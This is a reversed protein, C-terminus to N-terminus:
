WRAAGLYAPPDKSVSAELAALLADHHPSARRLAVVHAATNGLIPDTAPLYVDYVDRREDLWRVIALVAGDINRLGSKAYPARPDIAACWPRLGSALQASVPVLPRAGGGLAVVDVVGTPHAVVLDPAFADLAAPDPPRAATEPTNLGVPDYVPGRAFYGIRGAETSAVRVDPPLSVLSAALNTLYGDYPHVMRRAERRMHEAGPLAALALSLVAITRRDARWALHAAWAALALLALSAPAYFRAAANQLPVGFAFALQHLAFPALALAPAALGRRASRSAWACAAIAGGYPLLTELAWEGLGELGLFWAGHSKVVLPLPLIMGFYRARWVFYGLGLAASASAIAAWRRGAGARRARLGGLLALGAGLVLGDPRVLGLLLALAPSWAARSPSGRWLTAWGFLALAAFATTGFGIVGAISAPSLLLSAGVVALMAPSRMTRPITARVVLALGLANVALAAFPPPVRAAALGALALMWLFDTAGEARPGGPWYVVGHGEAIQRAYTFLIYADEHPHSRALTLVGLAAYCAAIAALM